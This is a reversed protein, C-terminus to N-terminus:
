TARFCTARRQAGMRQAPPRLFVYHAAAVTLCPNLCGFSHLAQYPKSCCLLCVAGLSSSRAKILGGLLECVAVVALLQFWVSLM